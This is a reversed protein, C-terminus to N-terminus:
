FGKIDVRNRMQPPPHVSKIRASLHKKCKITQYYGTPHKVKSKQNNRRVQNDLTKKNLENKRSGSSNSLLVHRSFM